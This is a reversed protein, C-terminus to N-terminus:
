RSSRGGGPGDPEYEERDAAARVAPWKREADDTALCSRIIGVRYSEPNRGSAKLTARWPDLVMSRAGQPLFNSDNRAARQAGPESM